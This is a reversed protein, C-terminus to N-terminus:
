WRRISGGSSPSRTARRAAGLLARRPSASCSARRIAPALDRGTELQYLSQAEPEIGYGFLTVLSDRPGATSRAHRPRRGGGGRGSRAPAGRVIASAGAM